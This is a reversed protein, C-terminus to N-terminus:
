KEKDEEFAFCRFGIHDHQDMRNLNCLIEENPDKDKKCVLCIGPKPYLDPNYETGDDYYYKGEIM